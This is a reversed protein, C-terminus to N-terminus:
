SKAALGDLREKFVKLLADYMKVMYRNGKSTFYLGPMSNLEVVWPRGTEDFMIDISFVRPAFAEFLKNAHKIIPFVSRPVKGLPIFTVTGGQALNALYSGQAPKRFLSYVLKDNVMILRLDHLGKTVGPIGRSSDVFEQVICDREVVARKLADRKELIQVGQGGSQRLPKIVVKGTKISKLTNQLEQRSNALFCKKSWKKFMLSNLLKHDIIKTFELHNVFPYDNGILDKKYFIEPRAKTKDYIFDPKINHARKWNNGASEFIWAYKFIKKKHDYWEYSARYVRIGNKKCLTYFYEYSYRYSKDKPPASTKWNSKSFLILVKKM